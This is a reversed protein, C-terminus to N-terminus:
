GEREKRGKEWGRRKWELRTELPLGMQRLTADSDHENREWPGLLKM